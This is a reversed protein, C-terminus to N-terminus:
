GQKLKEKFEKLKEAVAADSLALIEVALIAANKGNNIGVAAVPVNPPMQVVSLLADMGDLAADVPVGIVPKTTRAAVVGPLAASLGAICIFVSATSDKVLSEVKDPNRHASAVETRYEVNFARLVDAAKNVIEEDSKSGSIILVKEM